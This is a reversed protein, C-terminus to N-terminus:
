KTGWATKFLDDFPNGSPMSRSTDFLALKSKLMSNEARLKDVEKINVIKEAGCKDCIIKIRM